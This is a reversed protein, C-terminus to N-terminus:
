GVELWKSLVFVERRGPAHRASRFPAGGSAGTSTSAQLHTLQRQVFNSDAELGVIYATLVSPEAALRSPGADLDAEAEGGDPAWQPQAGARTGAHQSRSPQAGGPLLSQLTLTSLCGDAPLQQPAAQLAPQQGSGELRSPEVGGDGLVQQLAQADREAAAQEAAKQRERQQQPRCLTTSPNPPLKGAPRRGVAAAAAAAAAAGAPAHATPPAPAVATADRM